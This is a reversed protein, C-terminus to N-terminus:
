MTFVPVLRSMRVSVPPHPGAPAGSKHGSQFTAPPPSLVAPALVPLIFPSPLGPPSFLSFSPRTNSTLTPPLPPPPPQPPPPSYLSFSVIRPQCLHIPRTISNTITGSSFPQGQVVAVADMVVVVAVVVAPWDGPNTTEGCAARLNSIRRTLKLRTVMRTHRSPSAPEPSRLLDATHSAGTPRMATEKVDLYKGKNHELNPVSASVYVM